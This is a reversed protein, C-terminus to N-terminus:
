KIGLNYRLSKKFDDQGRVYENVCREKICDWLWRPLRIERGDNKKDDWVSLFSIREELHSGIAESPLVYFQKNKM